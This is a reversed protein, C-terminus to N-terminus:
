YQPPQKITEIAVGHAAGLRKAEGFARQLQNMTTIAFKSLDTGAANSAQQQYLNVLALHAKLQWDLYNRDFEEGSLGAIRQLEATWWERSPHSVAVGHQQALRGVAARLKAHEAAIARGFERVAPTSSRDAPQGAEVEADSLNAARNLFERDEAPLGQGAQPPVRPNTDPRINTQAVAPSVLLAVLIPAPLWKRM